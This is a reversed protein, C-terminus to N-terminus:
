KFLNGKPFFITEEINLFDIAEKQEMGKKEWGLFNAKFLLIM